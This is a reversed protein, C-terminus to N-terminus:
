AVPLVDFAVSIRTGNQEYPITRHFFYSPFLVLRGPEPRVPRCSPTHRWHYEDSPMGFEIWGAQAAGPDNVVDPLCPYYVGSLWASPHIHPAQHAGAGHMVIAWATLRWRAPAAAVFSHTSDAGLRAQYRTVADVIMAQFAPMPGDGDGLLEGTHQGNRTAHSAPAEVLTPHSLLHDTLRDNFTALDTFGPPAPPTECSLFRDFDVLRDAQGADGAEGLAIVKAALVGADGPHTALYRDCASVAAQPQGQEVLVDALNTCADPYDPDLSAAQSLAAAADPLRGLHQLVIGYGVRAVADSPDRAIVAEYAARAEDFRGLARLVFALGAHAAAYSPEVTIATQYAAAADEMRGLEHLGTAVNYQATANDPALSAAATFSELAPELLGVKQRVVGLNFHAEADNNDGAVAEELWSFARDQDGAQFAAIGGVLLADHLRPTENLIEQCAAVAAAPRGDQLERRARDVARVMRKQRASM